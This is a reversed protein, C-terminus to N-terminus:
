IPLPLIQCRVEGGGGLHGRARQRARRRKAAGGADQDPLRVAGAHPSGSRRTLSLPPRHIRGARTHQTPHRCLAVRAERRGYEVTRLFGCPTAFTTLYSRSNGSNSYRLGPRSWWFTRTADAGTLLKSGPASLCSNRFRAEYHSFVLSRSNWGRTTADALEGEHRGPLRRAVRAPLAVAAFSVKM